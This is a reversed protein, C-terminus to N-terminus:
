GMVIVRRAVVAMRHSIQALGPHGPLSGEWPSDAQVRLAEEEHISKPIGSSTLMKVGTQELLAVGCRGKLSRTVMKRRRFRPDHQAVVPTERSDSDM